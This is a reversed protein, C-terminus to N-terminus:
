LSIVTKMNIYQVTGIFSELIFPSDSFHISHSSLILFRRNSLIFNLNNLICGFTRRNYRPWSTHWWFRWFESLCLLILTLTKFSFRLHEILDHIMIESIVPRQVAFFVQNKVILRCKKCLHQSLLLRFTYEEDAYPWPLDTRIIRM